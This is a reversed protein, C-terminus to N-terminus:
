AKRPLGPSPSIPIDPGRVPRESQRQCAHGSPAARARGLTDPAPGARKRCGVRGDSVPGSAAAFKDWKQRCTESCRRPSFRCMGDAAHARSFGFKGSMGLTGNLTGGGTEQVTEQSIVMRGARPSAPGCPMGHHSPLAATFRWATTVTQPGKLRFPLVIERSVPAPEDRTALATVTYTAAGAGAGATAGRSEAHWLVSRQAMM